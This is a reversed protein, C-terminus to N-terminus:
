KPNLRQAVQLVAGSIGRVLPDTPMRDLEDRYEADMNWLDAGQRLLDMYSRSPPIFLDEPGNKSLLRTRLSNASPNKTLVFAEISQTAAGRLIQEAEQQVATAGASQGDGVYPVVRCRLWRYTWPVGESQGLVAFDSASLGAYLVGHVNSGVTPKYRVSAASPEIWRPGPVDFALEYNSLVAATSGTGVDLNRLSTMTAPLMNSGIAFYNYSTTGTTLGGVVSATTDFSNVIWWLFLVRRVSSAILPVKAVM